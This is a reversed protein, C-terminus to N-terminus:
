KGMLGVVVRSGEVPASDWVVSVQTQNRIERGMREMVRSSLDVMGGGSDGLGDGPLLLYWVGKELRELRENGAGEMVVGGKGKCGVGGGLKGRGRGVDQSTIASGRAYQAAYGSLVSFSM